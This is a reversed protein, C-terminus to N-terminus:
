FSFLLGVLLMQAAIHIQSEPGFITVIDSASEKNPFRFMCNTKNEIDHLFISKEGVLQRHYRRPISVTEVVFDKDRSSVMDM